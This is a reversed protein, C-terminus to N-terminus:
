LQIQDGSKMVIAESQTAKKVETAWAEADQNIMDFTNYHIPVVKKPKILKVAKLADDPGM